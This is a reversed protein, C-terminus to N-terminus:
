PVVTFALRSNVATGDGNILEIVYDQVLEHAPVKVTLTSANQMTPALGDFAGSSGALPAFHVSLRAGAVFGSGQITIVTDVSASARSPNASTLSPGASPTATVESGKLTLTPPYPALPMLSGTLAHWKAIDPQVLDIPLAWSTTLLLALVRAGPGVIPGGVNQALASLRVQWQTGGPETVTGSTVTTLNAVKPSALLVIPDNASAANSDGLVLPSGGAAARIMAIGLQNDVAILRVQHMGGTNDVLRFSSSGEVLSAATLFDGQADILFVTGFDHDNVITMVGQLARDREDPLLVAAPPPSVSPTATPSPTAAASLRRAVAPVLAILGMLVLTIVLAALLPEGRGRLYRGVAICREGALTEQLAADM